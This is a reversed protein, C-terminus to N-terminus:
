LDKQCMGKYMQEGDGGMKWYSSSVACGAKRAITEERWRWCIGNTNLHTHCFIGRTSGLNGGVQTHSVRPVEENLPCFSSPDM